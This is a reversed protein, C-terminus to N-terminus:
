VIRRLRKYKSRRPVPKISGYAADMDQREHKVDEGKIKPQHTKTGERVAM